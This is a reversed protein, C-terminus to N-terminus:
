GDEIKRRQIRQKNFWTGNSSGLDEIYWADRDQVIAAHERSVKGSNIVLDCHKGRGIVYREKALREQGTETILYLGAADPGLAPDSPAAAHVPRADLGPEDAHDDGLLEAPAAGDNARSEVSPPEFAQPAAPALREVPQLVAVPVRASQSGAVAANRSTSVGSDIFGNLRAFMFMAQNILADRDTGMERAMDEFADWIHDAIAVKRAPRAPHEM